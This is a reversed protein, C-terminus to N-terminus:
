NGMFFLFCYKKTEENYICANGDGYESCFVVCLWAISCGFLTNAMCLRNDTSTFFFDTMFFCVALGILAGLNSSFSSFLLATLKNEENAHEYIFVMGGPYEIGLSMGQLMRLLIFFILVEAM